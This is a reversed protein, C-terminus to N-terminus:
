SAFNPGLRRCTRKRASLPGELRSTRKPGSKTRKVGLLPGDLCPERLDRKSGVRVNLVAAGRIHLPLIQRAARDQVREAPCRITVTTGVGLESELVLTGNHLEILAKSLPLGLGTGQHQRTLSNDTQGFQEM